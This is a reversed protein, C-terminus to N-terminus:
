VKEWNWDNRHKLWQIRLDSVCEDRTVLSARHFTELSNAGFRISKAEGNTVELVPVDYANLENIDEDKLLDRFQNFIIEKQKIEDLDWFDEKVLNRITIGFSYLNENTNESDKFM